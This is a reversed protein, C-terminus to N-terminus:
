RRSAGKLGLARLCAQDMTREGGRGGEAVFFGGAYDWMAWGIRYEECLERVDRIWALRDARPAVKAYVGFENCTVEVGHRDRWAVVERLRAALWARDAAYDQLHEEGETGAVRKLNTRKSREKMPYNLKAIPELGMEPWHASQHTFVMPEYFHFNYVLNGHAHPSMALLDNIGTWRHPGVIVTHHPAAARIADLFGDQIKWWRELSMRAAPENLTEFFVWEPDRQALHRAMAGWLATAKEVFADDNAIRAKTDERAHWDVIVALERARAEDLVADFRSLFEPKLRAPRDEDLFMEFEVPFRVHRFGADAILQLDAPTVYTDFWDAVYGRDHPLQSFWHSLNIGRTLRGLRVDSVPAATLAASGFASLLTAGVLFVVSLRM